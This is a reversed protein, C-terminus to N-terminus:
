TTSSTEAWASYESISNSTWTSSPTPIRDDASDEIRTRSDFHIFRFADEIREERRFHRPFARAEPEGFYQAERLLQASAEFDIEGM